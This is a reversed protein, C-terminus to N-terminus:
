RLLHQKFIHAIYHYLSLLFPSKWDMIFLTAEMVLGQDVICKM